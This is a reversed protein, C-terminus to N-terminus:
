YASFLELPFQCNILGQPVLAEYYGSITIALHFQLDLAILFITLKIMGFIGFFLFTHEGNKPPPEM